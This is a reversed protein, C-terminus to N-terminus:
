YINKHMEFDDNIEKLGVLKERWVDIIIRSLENIRMPEAVASYVESDINYYPGKPLGPKERLDTIDFLMYLGRFLEQGELLRGIHIPELHSLRHLEGEDVFLIKRIERNRPELAIYLDLRRLYDDDQEETECLYLKMVRM